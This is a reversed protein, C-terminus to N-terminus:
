GSPYSVAFNAHLFQKEEQVAIVRKIEAKLAMGARGTIILVFFLCHFHCSNPWVGVWDM